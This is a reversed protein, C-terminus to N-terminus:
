HIVLVLLGLQFAELPLCMSPTIASLYLANGEASQLARVCRFPLPLWQETGALATEASFPAPVELSTSFDLDRLIHIRM